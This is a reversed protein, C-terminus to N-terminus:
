ENRKTIYEIFSVDNNETGQFVSSGLYAIRLGTLENKEVPEVQELQYAEDNAGCGFFGLSTLTMVTAMALCVSKLKRTIM